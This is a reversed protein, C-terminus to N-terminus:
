TIIQNLIAGKWTVENTISYISNPDYPSLLSHLCCWDLHNGHKFLPQSSTQSPFNTISSSNDALYTNSKKFSTVMKLTQISKFCVCVGAGKSSYRTVYCSKIDFLPYQSLEVKGFSAPIATLATIDNSLAILWGADLPLTSETGRQRHGAWTAKCHCLPM